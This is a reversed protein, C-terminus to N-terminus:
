SSPPHYVEPVLLGGDANDVWRYYYFRLYKINLLNCIIYM